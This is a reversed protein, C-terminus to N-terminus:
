SFALHQPTDAHHVAMKDATGSAHGAEDLLVVSEV